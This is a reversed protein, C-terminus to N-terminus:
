VVYTASGKCTGHSKADGEQLYAKVAAWHEKMMSCFQACYRSCATDHQDQMSQFLLESNEFTPDLVALALHTCVFPDYPNAYIHKNSVKM